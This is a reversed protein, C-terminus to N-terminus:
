LPENILRSNQFRYLFDKCQIPKGVNMIKTNLFLTGKLNESLFYFCFVVSSETRVFKIM